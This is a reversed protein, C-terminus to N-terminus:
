RIDREEWAYCYSAGRFYADCVAAAFIVMVLVISIVMVAVMVMVMVMVM